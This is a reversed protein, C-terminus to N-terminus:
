AHRGLLLSHIANPISKPSPRDQCTKGAQALMGSAQSRIQRSLLMWECLSLLGLYQMENRRGKSAEISGSLGQLVGCSNEYPSYSGM